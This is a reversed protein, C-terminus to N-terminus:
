SGETVCLYSIYQAAPGILSWLGESTFLVTLFWHPVWALSCFQQWLFFLCFFPISCCYDVDTLTHRFSILVACHSSLQHERIPNFLVPVSSHNVSLVSRSILLSEFIAWLRLQKSILRKFSALNLFIHTDKVTQVHQLSPLFQYQGFKGGFGVAQQKHRSM